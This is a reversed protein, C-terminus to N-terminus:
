SMIGCPFSILTNVPEDLGSSASMIQLFRPMERPLLVTVANASPSHEMEMLSGTRPTSTNMTCLVQLGTLSLRMSSSTMISAIFRAEAPRMVATM